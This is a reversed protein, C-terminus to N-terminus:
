RSGARGRADDGHRQEAARGLSSRARARRRRADSRTSQTATSSPARAGAASAAPRRARPPQSPPKRARPAPALREAREAATRSRRRAHRTSPREDDRRAEREAAQSARPARRRARRRRRTRRASGAASRASGRRRVAPARLGRASRRLALAGRRRRRPAASRARRRRARAPAPRVFRLRARRLLLQREAVVAVLQRRERSSSAGRARRRAADVLLRQARARVDELRLEGVEADDALDDRHPGPGTIVVKSNSGAGPTLTFRMTVRASSRTSPAARARRGCGPASGPCPRRRCRPRRVRAALLDASRSISSLSATGRLRLRRQREREALVGGAVRYTASRAAHRVQQDGAGGAGALRHRHVRHDHADEELRRRAVHAEDHDVRLHELQRDVLVDRVQEHRDDGIRLLRDAHECLMTRPSPRASGAAAAVLAHAVDVAVVPQDVVLSASCRAPTISSSRADASSSSSRRRAGTSSWGGSCRAGAAITTMMSSSASRMIVTPRSTSSDIVRRACFARAAPMWRIRAVCRGDTSTMVPRMLAFKGARMENWTVDRTSERVMRSAMPASRRSPSPSM